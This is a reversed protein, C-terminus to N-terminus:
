ASLYHSITTKLTNFEVPKAIVEDCGAEIAKEGYYNKHATVAVVPVGDKMDKIYRTATLGDMLPLSLDMLVLDPEHEKILDLAEYGDTAELVRYGLKELRLKMMLRADEYDEVLLITRKM